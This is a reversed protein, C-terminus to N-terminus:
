SGEEIELVCVEYWRCSPGLCVLHQGNQGAIGSTMPSICVSLGSTELVSLCVSGFDDPVSLCIRDSLILNAPAEYIQAPTGSASCGLVEQGPEEKGACEQEETM